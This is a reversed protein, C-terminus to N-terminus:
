IYGGRKPPVGNLYYNGVHFYKWRVPDHLTHVRANRWHRDFNFDQLTSRAGALEFLKNAAALAAETTAIRAEATAISAAAVSEETTDALADDIANGARQLLLEAGRLRIQLDGVAAITFPDDSARQQDGDIWARSKGRVFAIMDEFAGRAIGADVAALLAQNVPGFVTPPGESTRAVVVRSAPVPVNDLLVTGSATTRQGFSSWDNVVTLGPADRDLYAFYYGGDEPNHAVVVVMHALLACTAYFKRGSIVYGDTAPRILTGYDNVTKGALEAMANGLRMGKMIRGFFFAKQQESGEALLQEIFALHNHPMQGLCPDAAAIIAICELVTAYSVRAGGYRRPITMAWLGSQSFADIEEVPLFGERDRLAAERGFLAAMEHAAALAESDSSLVAAPVDSLRPAPMAQEPDNVRWRQPAVENGTVEDEVRAANSM